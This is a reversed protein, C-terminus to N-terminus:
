LGLEYEAVRTRAAPADCGARSKASRTELRDNEISNSPFAALAAFTDFASVFLVGATRLEANELKRFATTAFTVGLAAEPYETCFTEVTETAADDGELEIMIVTDAERIAEIDDVGVGVGVLFDDRFAELGDAAVGNSTIRADRTADTDGIDEAIDIPNRVTEVTNEEDLLGVAVPIDEDVNVDTCDSDALGDDDEARDAAADTDLADADLLKEATADADLLKEATADADSTGV